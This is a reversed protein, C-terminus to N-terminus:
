SAPGNHNRCLASQRTFGSLWVTCIEYQGHGYDLESLLYVEFRGQKLDELQEGGIPIPSYGVYFYQGKPIQSKTGFPVASLESWLMEEQAARMNEAVRPLIRVLTRISVTTPAAFRVAIRTQVPKGAVATMSSTASEIPPATPTSYWAWGYAGAGVAALVALVIYAIVANTLQQRWDTALWRSGGAKSPNQLNRDPRRIRSVVVVAAAVLLWFM